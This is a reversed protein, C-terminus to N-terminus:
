NNGSEDNCNFSRELIDISFNGLLHALAGISIEPSYFVMCSNIGDSLITALPYDALKELMEICDLHKREKMYMGGKKQEKCEM